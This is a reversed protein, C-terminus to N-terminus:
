KSIQRTMQKKEPFSPMPFRIDLLWLMLAGAIKTPPLAKNRDVGYKKNIYDYARSLFGKIETETMGSWIKLPITADMVHALVEERDSLTGRLM